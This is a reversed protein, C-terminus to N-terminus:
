AAATYCARSHAIASCDAFVYSVDLHWNSHLFHHIISRYRPVPNNDEFKHIPYKKTSRRLINCFISNTPIKRHELFLVTGLDFWLMHSRQPTMHGQHLTALRYTPLPPTLAPRLPRRQKPTCASRRWAPGNPPHSFPPSKHQRRGPNIPRRQPEATPSMQRRQSGGPGDKSNDTDDHLTVCQAASPLTRSHNRAGASGRPGRRPKLTGPSHQGTETGPTRQSGHDRRWHTSPWLPSRQPSYPAAVDLFQKQPSQSHSTRAAQRPPGKTAPFRRM